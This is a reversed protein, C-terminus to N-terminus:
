KTTDNPSVGQEKKLSRYYADSEAYAEEPDAFLGCVVFALRPAIKDQGLLMTLVQAKQYLNEYNRRTFKIGIDSLALKNGGETLTHTYSLALKLFEKESGKFTLEDNLTKAETETWGDRMIVAQGSNGVSGGNSLPIGCISYVIKIFNDKLKQVQEQNLEQQLFEIKAEVEGTDTINIAGMEQLEKLMKQDIEINKFVMLSQVFQTTANVRDSDILNIADLMPLVVEFAGIREDNLPYEILPVKGYTHPTANDVMTTTTLNFKYLKSDTYAQLIVSEKGTTLDKETLVIVGLLAKEGIDSSYVVYADTPSITYISFPSEVISKPKFVKNPLVLRYATGCIARHNAIVKDKSEKNEIELYDNFSILSADDVEDKRAVYQVPKDLLYGTRFQVISYALNEVIKCNHEPRIKKVRNLIPQIGRYYNFLYEIETANSKFVTYTSQLISVINDDNVERYNTYIKQRGSGVM